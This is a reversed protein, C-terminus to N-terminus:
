PLKRTDYLRANKGEFDSVIIVFDTNWNISTYKVDQDSNLYYREEAIWYDKGFEKSYHQVYDEVTYSIPTLTKYLVICFFIMISFFALIKNM